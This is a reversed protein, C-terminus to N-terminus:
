GRPTEAIAAALTRFVRAPDAARMLASIVALGDAGAEAVQGANTADIGGIAVLPGPVSARAARVLALGVVPDPNAKTTTAYVPGVAVYDAGAAGAAVAQPLDHTSVGVIADPPLVRRAEGPALDDQGLHVGDAGSLRAVDPRDNVILLAGAAHAAAVARRACQELARGDLAKARLQIIRAGAAALTGVMEPAGDEALLAADVIPYVFPAPPLRGGRSV